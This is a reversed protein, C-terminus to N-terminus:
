SGCEDACLGNSSTCGGCREELMLAIEERIEKAWELRKSYRQRGDEVGRLKDLGKTKSQTDKGGAAEYMWLLLEPCSVPHRLIGGPGRADAKLLDKGELSKGKPGIKKEIQFQTYAYWSVVLHWKQFEVDYFDTEDTVELNPAIEKLWDPRQAELKAGCGYLWRFFQFSYALDIYDGSGFHGELTKDKRLQELYQKTEPCEKDSCNIYFNIVKRNTLKANEAGAM